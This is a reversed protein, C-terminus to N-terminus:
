QGNDLIRYKKRKASLRYNANEERNEATMRLATPSVGRRGAGGANRWFYQVDGIGGGFDRVKYVTDAKDQKDKRHRRTLYTSKNARKEGDPSYNSKRAARKKAM